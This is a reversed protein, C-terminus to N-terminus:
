AKSQTQIKDIIKLIQDKIRDEFNLHDNYLFIEKNM